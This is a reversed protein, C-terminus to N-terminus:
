KNPEHEARIKPKFFIVDAQLLRGSHEEQLGPAIYCLEFGKSIIYDYMKRFTTEGEYLETFSMELQLGKIKPLVGEAGLMVEYEFGQTDIKLFVESDQKTFQLYLNDLTQVEITQIGTYASHPAAKLHTDGMPLLSSSASNAAVNIIAAGATKGLAFPLIHWNGFGKSINNLVKLPEELPEFSVITGCFGAHQLSKAFQGYNAGVDFVFNIGHKEFLRQRERDESSLLWRLFYKLPIIRYKYAGKLCFQRVIEKARM